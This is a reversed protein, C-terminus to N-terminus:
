NQYIQKKEESADFIPEVSNSGELLTSGISVHTLPNISRVPFLCKTFNTSKGLKLRGFVILSTNQKFM